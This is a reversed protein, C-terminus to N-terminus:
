VCVYYIVCSINGHDCAALIEMLRLANSVIEPASTMLVKSLRLPLNVDTVCLASHLADLLLLPM